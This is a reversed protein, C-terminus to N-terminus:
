RENQKLRRELVSVAYSLLMVLLLYVLAVAILPLFAEYTISRIIDGGKTLDMLGIYGSISTEKLLSIFENCLAPLVNKFAQPLIIYRMTQSHTLGLCRGAEFQGNDIAMIGSRVIEAVYAASNLGFAIVAVLIKETNISAFIVYYIILLQVMVPTGRFINVYIKCIFNLIKLNGNKDHSSRIVAIIFGLTTGLVGALLAIILTNILGAVLYHWRNDQIFNSNIKEVLRQELGEYDDNKVIVVQKANTYSDTFNINKKREETMTIGAAGINAKGSQVATIIADFEMDEIRIAMSLKDAVARMIDMDIGVVEKNHYYEYPPFTINTAVILTGASEDPNNDTYKFQGISGDDNIYNAKIKDITGDKTLDAIAKNVNLLLDNNTKAICFAYDENSFEEDLMRLGPNNKIYAKAPEIDIVVADIKEQKLAHIADTGKNYREIKTGAEDDEYDSVYIDSTTGLQVGIRAGALDAISGVIHRDKSCAVMTVVFTAILAM